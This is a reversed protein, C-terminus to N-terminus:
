TDSTVNKNMEINKLMGLYKHIRYVIYRKIAKARYKPLLQLVPEMEEIVQLTFPVIQIDIDKLTSIYEMQLDHNKKLTYAKNLKEGISNRYAILQFRYCTALLSAGNDLIPAEVIEGNKGVLVHVNGYHRDTNGIIADFLLMTDIYKQSLTSYMIEKNTVQKENSSLKSNHAKKLDAVTTITYEENDIKECISLYKCKRSIKVLNKFLKAPIIDYELIDIGMCKGIIFAMKESYPEFGFWGTGKVLYIKDTKIDRVWFKNLRGMNTKGTDIHILEFEKDKWKVTESM